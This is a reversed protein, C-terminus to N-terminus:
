PLSEGDFVKGSELKGIYRMEIRNGKKAQPGSGMKHDECSVGQVIKVGLSGRAKAPENNPEKPLPPASPTPGQELTKAFQVKKEGNLAAETKATNNTNEAPVAEGDNKKFKKMKKKQAKSLTKEEGNTTPESAKISRTMIEDLNADGEDSEEAARKNKGKASTKVLKPTEDDTDVEMVRPDALDDLDDSEEGGEMAALLDLEDEDPSQDYDDDDDHLRSSGDDTPIVYNGTLHVEHTGSVKFFIQENEAVVIDL